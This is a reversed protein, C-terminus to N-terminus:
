RVREDRKAGLAGVICTGCVGQEAGAGIVDRVRDRVVSAFVIVGATIARLMKRWTNRVM